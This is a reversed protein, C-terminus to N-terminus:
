GFKSFQAENAYRFQGTHNGFLKEQVLPFMSCKKLTNVTYYENTKRVVLHVKYLTEKM